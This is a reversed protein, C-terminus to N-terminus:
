RRQQAASAISTEQIPVPGLITQTGRREAKAIFTLHFDARPFLLRISSKQLKHVKKLRILRALLSEIM